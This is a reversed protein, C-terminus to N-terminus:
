NKYLEISQWMNRKDAVSGGGGASGTWRGAGSTILENVYEFSLGVRVALFPNSCGGRSGITVILFWHVGCVADCATM